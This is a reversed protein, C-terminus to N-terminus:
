RIVSIDGASGVTILRTTGTGNNSTKSITITGTANVAGTLHNFMVSTKSFSTSTALRWGTPLYTIKNGAAGEIYIPGSFYTYSTIDFRVGAHTGNKGATADGKAQELTSDLGDAIIDLNKSDRANYFSSLGLAGIIILVTISIIVEVLTFGSASQGRSLGCSRAKTM